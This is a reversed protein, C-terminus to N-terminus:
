PDGHRLKANEKLLQDNNTKLEVILNKQQDNEAELLDMSEIQDLIEKAASRRRKQPTAGSEGSAITIDGYSKFNASKVRAEDSPESPESKVSADPVAIDEFVDFQSINSAPSYPSDM